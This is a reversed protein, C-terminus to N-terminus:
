VAYHSISQAERGLHIEAMRARGARNRASRTPSSVLPSHEDVHLSPRSRPKDFLGDLPAGVTWSGGGPPGSQRKPRSGIHGPSCAPDKGATRPLPERTSRITSSGIRSCRRGSAGTSWTASTSLPSLAPYPSARSKGADVTVGIRDGGRATTSILVIPLLNSKIM